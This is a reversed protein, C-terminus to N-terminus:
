GKFSNWLSSIKAPDIKYTKILRFIRLPYYLFFLFRPLALTERDRPNIRLAIKLFYRLKSGLTTERKEWLSLVHAIYSYEMNKYCVYQQHQVALELVEPFQKLKESLTEPLSIQLYTQAIAIGFWFLRDNEDTGCQTIVKQWNAEPYAQILAGFDSIRKLSQWGEKAGHLYGLALCSEPSFTTITKGLLSVTQLNEFFSELNVKLYFNQPVLKYHLDINVRRDPLVMHAQGISEEIKGFHKDHYGQAIMVEKAKSFDQPHVLIDLDCFDRVTMNGYALTAWILGKFPIVQIKHTAFLNLLKFLQNAMFLNYIMRQQATNEISELVSVPVGELQNYKLTTYLLMFVNQSVTHQVLIEWDLNIKLFHQVESIKASNLQYRICCLLFENEPSYRKSPSSIPLDISQQEIEKIM